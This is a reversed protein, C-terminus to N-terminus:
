GCTYWGVATSLRRWSADYCLACSAACLSYAGVVDAPGRLLGWSAYWAYKQLLYPRCPEEAGSLDEGDPSQFNLYLGLTM